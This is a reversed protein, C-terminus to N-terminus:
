CGTTSIIILNLSRVASRRRGIYALPHISVDEGIESTEHIFARDSIGPFSAPPPTFLATVKAYALNPNSTIILSGSYDEIIQSAILAGAKTNTLANRYRDDTFFSIENNRAEQLSNIGTICLTEDGIVKGNIREALEKLTYSM